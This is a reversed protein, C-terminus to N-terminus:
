GMSKFYTNESLYFEFNPVQSIGDLSHREVYLEVLPDFTNTLGCVTCNCALVRRLGGVRTLQWVCLAARNLDLGYAAACVAVSVM